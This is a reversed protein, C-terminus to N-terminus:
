PTSKQHGISHAIRTQRRHPGCSPSPGIARDRPPTRSFRKSSVPTRRRAAVHCERIKSASNGVIPRISPPFQLKRGTAGNSKPESNRGGKPVSHTQKAPHRPDLPDPKSSRVYPRSLRSPQATRTWTAAESAIEMLRAGANECDSRIGQWDIRLWVPVSPCLPQCSSPFM